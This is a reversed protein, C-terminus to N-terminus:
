APTWRHCRRRSADEGQPVLKWQRVRITTPTQLSMALWRWRATKLLMGFTLTRQEAAM